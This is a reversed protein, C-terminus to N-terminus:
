CRHQTSACSLFTTIIFSLTSLCDLPEQCTRVYMSLMIIGKTIIHSLHTVPMHCIYTCLYVCVTSKLDSTGDHFFLFDFQSILNVTNPSM